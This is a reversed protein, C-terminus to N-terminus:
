APNLATVTANTGPGQGVVLLIASKQGNAAVDAGTAFVFTVRGKLNVNTVDKWYSGHAIDGSAAAAGNRVKDTAHQYSAVEIGATNGSDLNGSPLYTQNEFAM